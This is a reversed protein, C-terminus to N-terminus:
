FGALAIGSSGIGNQIRDMVCGRHHRGAKLENDITMKKEKSVKDPQPEIVM